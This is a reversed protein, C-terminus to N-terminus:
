AISTLQGPLAASGTSCPDARPGTGAAHRAAARGRGPRRHHDPARARRAGPGSSRRAPPVLSVVAAALGIEAAAALGSHWASPGVTVLRGNGAPGGSLGTIAAVVLGAVVGAGLGTLPVQWWALRRSRGALRWGALVGALVPIALLMPGWSPSSGSPVAALVPLDPVAGLHHAFPSVGTHVGISFGTGVVYSLAWAVATVLFAANIVLLAGGGIAGAHLSQGLHTALDLHALLMLVVVAVSIVLLLAVAQVGARASDAVARPLRQLLRRGLRDHRLAGLTGCGLALAYPVLLSQLPAPRVATSTTMGAVVGAIAAYTAAMGGIALWGDRWGRLGVTRAVSQGARVLLVMPILMLGLPVLGLHVSPLPGVAVGVHQSLLWTASAVRLAQSAATTGGSSAWSAMVVVTAVILGM